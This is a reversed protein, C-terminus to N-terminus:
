GFGNWCGRCQVLIMICCVHQRLSSREVGFEKSRPLRVCDSCIQVGLSDFLSLFITFDFLKRRGLLM